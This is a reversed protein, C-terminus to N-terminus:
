HNDTGDDNGNQPRDHVGQSFSTYPTHTEEDKQSTQVHKHKEQKQQKMRVRVDKKSVKMYTDDKLDQIMAGSNYTYGRMKEDLLEARIFKKRKANTVFLILFLIILIVIVSPIGAVLLLYSLKIGTSIDNTFEFNTFVDLWEETVKITLIGNSYEAGEPLNNLVDADNILWKKVEHNEATGMVITITSGITLGELNSVSYGELNEANTKDTLSFKLPTLTISINRDSNNLTLTITDDQRENEYVGSLNVFAYKSANLVVTVKTGYNKPDTTFDDTLDNYSSGGINVSYSGLEPDSSFDVSFAYRNVFVVNLTLTGTNVNLFGDLFDATILLDFDDADETDQLDSYGQATRARFYFNYCNHNAKLTEIDTLQIPVLDGLVFTAPSVLNGSIDINRGLSDQGTIDLVYVAKNFQVAIQYDEDLYNIICENGDVNPTGLSVDFMDFEFYSVTKAAVKIYTGEFLEVAGGDFFGQIQSKSNLPIEISSLHDYITIEAFNGSYDADSYDTIEVLHTKAFVGIIIIEDAALLYKDLFESTITIAEDIGLSQYEYFGQTNWLAYDYFKQNEGADTAQGPTLINVTDGVIVSIDSAYAFSASEKLEIDVDVGGDKVVTDSIAYNEILRAQGSMNYPIASFILTITIETADGPLATLEPMIFTDVPAFTDDDSGSNGFTGNATISYGVIKYYKGEVIFQTDGYDRFIEAGVEQETEDIKVFVKGGNVSQAGEDVMNIIYKVDGAASATTNASIFVAAACFILMAALFTIVGRKKNKM